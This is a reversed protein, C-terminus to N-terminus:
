IGFIFHVLLLLKNDFSVVPKKPQTGSLHSIGTLNFWVALLEVRTKPQKTKLVALVEGAFPSASFCFYIM